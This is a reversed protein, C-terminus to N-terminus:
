CGFNHGTRLAIRLAQRTPRVPGVVELGDALVVRSVTEVLIHLGAIGGVNRPARAPSHGTSPCPLPPVPPLALIPGECASTPEVERIEGMEGTGPLQGPSVPPLTLRAPPVSRM